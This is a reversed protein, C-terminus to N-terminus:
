AIFRCERGEEKLHIINTDRGYRSRIIARAQRYNDCYIRERHQRPSTGKTFTVLFNQMM